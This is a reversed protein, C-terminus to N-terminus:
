RVEIEGLEIVNDPLAEGSPTTVPLREVTQSDYVGLRVRYTGPPLDDIPVEIRDDVVAGRPWYSTPFLGGRPMVDAQAAAQGESDLVHVFATYDRPIDALAQWQLRVALTSEGEVM